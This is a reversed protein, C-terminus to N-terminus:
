SRAPSRGLAAVKSKIYEMAANMSQSHRTQPTFNCQRAIKKRMYVSGLVAQYVNKKKFFIAQM